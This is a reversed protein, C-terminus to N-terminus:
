YVGEQFHTVTTSSSVAGMFVSAQIFVSTKTKASIMAVCLKSIANSAHNKLARLFHADCKAHTCTGERAYVRCVQDNFQFLSWAIM